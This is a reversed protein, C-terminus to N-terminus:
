GGQVVIQQAARRWLLRNVAMLLGCWLLAGIVPGPAAAASLRGVYLSLPIDLTYRFPLFWSAHLFWDPFFWLPIIAGALLNQLFKVALLAAENQLTWLSILDVTLMLQYLLVQAFVLSLGFAWGAATSAPPGILGAALCVLYAVLAWAFGYAQQGAARVLYYRAPSMPRLFWYLVSGDQVHQLLSDRGVSADLGSLRGALVALVAYTVAQGGSLGGREQVGDYFARWLCTVLFVQTALRIVGATIRLPQTM